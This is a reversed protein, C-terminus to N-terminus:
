SSFKDEANEVVKIVLVPKVVREEIITEKGSYGNIENGEPYTGRLYTKTTEFCGDKIVVKDLIDTREIDM